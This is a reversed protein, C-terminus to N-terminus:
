KGRAPPTPLTALTNLSRRYHWLQRQVGQAQTRAAWAASVERLAAEPDKGAEAEARGKALDALYGDADPIRLGPLLREAMLSQAVADSWLRSDVNPASAPDPLGRGMQSARVSLMPFGREADIRNAVDTEALYRALDLAAERRPGELGKRVGVLWGGGVLLYTPKNLSSGTAWAKRLPEYVRDSGPLPAVGVTEGQSWEAAKEARDILLATKGERFAARAAAIDFAEAGPPGLTKWAVVAKLTEIFPPADIRPTMDDADFLFSYQDRHQGLSAARALFTANAVGEADAGLAVALGFDPSGDGNWDRGHFFRALADLQSWTAPAELKLGQEKAAAVNAEAAFAERHYALVLVSGGVPLGYRETGYKSVQERFAPALDMYRFGSESQEDDAESRDPKAKGDDAPLPPLVLDNSIVELLERDILNGLEQGPFVLVDLEAVKALDLVPEGQIVIEGGRSAVWEGRQASVGALVGSDRLAGLTLTVGRYSPPAAQENEVATGSCGSGLGLSLVALFGWATCGSVGSNRVGSWRM